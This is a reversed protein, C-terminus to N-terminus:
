GGRTVEKNLRLLPMANHWPQEGKRRYTVEVRANRNDDGSIRWEFGLSALTPREITFQGTTISNQARIPMAWFTLLAFVVVPKNGARRCQTSKLSWDMKLSAFNM